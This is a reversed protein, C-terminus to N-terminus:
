YISFSGGRYIKKKNKRRRRYISSKKRKEGKGGGRRRSMWGPCSKPIYTSLQSLVSEVLSKATQFAPQQNASCKYSKLAAQSKSLYNKFYDAAKTDGSYRDKMVSVLMTNAFASYYSLNEWHNHLVNYIPEITNERIHNYRREIWNYAPYPMAVDEKMIAVPPFLNRPMKQKKGKPPEPAIKLKENYGVVTDKVLPCLGDDGLNLFRAGTREDKYELSKRWHMADDRFSFLLETLVFIISNEFQQPTHLTPGLSPNFLVTLFPYENKILNCAPHSWKYAQGEKGAVGTKWAFQNNKANSGSDVGHILQSRFSKFNEWIDMTALEKDNNVVWKTYKDNSLGCLLAITLVTLVHECQRGRPADVYDGGNQNIPFGCIYCQEEKEEM